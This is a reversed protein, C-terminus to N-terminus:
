KRRGGDTAELWARRQPWVARRVQSLQVQEHEKEVSNRLEGALDFLRDRDKKLQAVEAKLLDVEAWNIGLWRLLRERM